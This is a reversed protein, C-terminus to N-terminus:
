DLVEGQISITYDDVPVNKGSAAIARSVINTLGFCCPVEIHVVTLNNIDSKRFIETLKEVYYQGDDLKPCGIIVPKGKLFRTHFDALAFPVCDAVLLLDAGQLYPASPSVLMLQVPWNTLESSLTEIVTHTATTPQRQISRAMSGPCGQFVPEKKKEIEHLRKETAEEDFEESEREEITLADEPCEGICAGLGDCYIESVLKAKGDIVEIADEACATVCLGCGTCKEEDIKIINRIKPM